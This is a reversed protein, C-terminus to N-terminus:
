GNNAEQEPYMLPPMEIAKGKVKAEIADAVRRLNSALKAIAEGPTEASGSASTEFDGRLEDDPSNHVIARAQWEHPSTTRFSGILEVEFALHTGKAGPTSHGGTYVFRCGEIDVSKIHIAM